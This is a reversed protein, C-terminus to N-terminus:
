LGHADWNTLCEGPHLTFKIVGWVYTKTTKRLFVKINNSSISSAKVNSKQRSM